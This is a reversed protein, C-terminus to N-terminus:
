KFDAGCVPRCGHKRTSKKGKKKGGLTLRRTQQPFGFPSLWLDWRKRLSARCREGKFLSRPFILPCRRLSSSPWVTSCRWSWVARLGAPQERRTLSHHKSQSSKLGQAAVLIETTERTQRMGVKCSMIVGLVETRVLAACFLPLARAKCRNTLVPRVHGESWILACPPNRSNHKYTRGWLVMTVLWGTGLYSWRMFKYYKSM